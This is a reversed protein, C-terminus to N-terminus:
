DSQIRRETTAFGAVTMHGSTGFRTAVGARGGRANHAPVAIAAAIASDAVSGISGATCELACRISYWHIHCM